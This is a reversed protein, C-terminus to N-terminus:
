IDCVNYRITYLQRHSTYKVKFSEDGDDANISFINKRNVISDYLKIILWPINYTGHVILIGIYTNFNLIM